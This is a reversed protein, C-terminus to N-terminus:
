GNEKWYIEHMPGSLKWSSLDLSELTGDDAVATYSFWGLLSKLGVDKESVNGFGFSPCRGSNQILGCGNELLYSRSKPSECLHSARLNGYLM